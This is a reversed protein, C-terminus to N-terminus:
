WGGQRLLESVYSQDVPNKNFKKQWVDSDIYPWTMAIQDATLTELFRQGSECNYIVWPSIRGSVIAHCITNTNGFRLCHEAPAHNRESWDIAWELARAVASDVPEQQLHQVLYETYVSDTAWRDIKKNNTLLWELFREPAVARTDVCYRGWKAFARYYPSDAFDDFTKLRSSGQTTQYFQLFAQFGLQVGREHQEQRRRKPECMHVALSSERVFTKRCHDCLFKTATETSSSTNM